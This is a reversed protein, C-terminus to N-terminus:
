RPWSRASSRRACPPRTATSARSCRRSSSTAASTRDPGGGCAATAGQALAAELIGTVKEFQQANALPGMETAEELPNGLVIERARAAVREVLEDHVDEHVILRSGAMCTQGTAAFVGAIVGNAAAELDADPFM